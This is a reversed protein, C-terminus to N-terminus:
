VRSTCGGVRVKAVDMATNVHEVPVHAVQRVAYDDAIVEVMEQAARNFGNWRLYELVAHQVKDEDRHVWVPRSPAAPPNQTRRKDASM